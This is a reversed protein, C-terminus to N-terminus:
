PLLCGAAHYTKLALWILCKMFPTFSYCSLENKCSIACTHTFQRAQGMEWMGRIRVAGEIPLKYPYGGVAVLINKARLRRTTGDVGRVEVTHADVLFGRGETTWLSLPM